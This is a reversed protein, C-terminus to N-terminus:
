FHSRDVVCHSFFFELSNLDWNGHKYPVKVASSLLPSSLSGSLFMAYLCESLV